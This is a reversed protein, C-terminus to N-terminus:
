NQIKIVEIRISPHGLILTGEEELWLSMAEPAGIKIRCLQVTTDTVTKLQRLSLTIGNM